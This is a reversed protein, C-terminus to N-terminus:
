GMENMMQVYQGIHIAASCKEQSRDLALPSTQIETPSIWLFPAFRSQTQIKSSIGIPFEEQLIRSRTSRTSSFGPKQNM